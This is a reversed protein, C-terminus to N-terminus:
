VSRNDQTRAVKSEVSECGSQTLTLMHQTHTHTHTHPHQTTHHPTLPEGNVSHLHSCPTHTHTTHTLTPPTADTGCGGVGVGDWGCARAGVWECMCVDVFACLCVCGCVSVCVVCVQEWSM